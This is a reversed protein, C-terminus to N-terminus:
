TFSDINTIYDIFDEYTYGTNVPYVSAKTNLNSIVEEHFFARLGLVVTASMSNFESVEIVPLDFLEKCTDRKTVIFGTISIGVKKFASFIRKSYDGAGYIYIPEEIEKLHELDRQITHIKNKYSSEIIFNINVDKNEAILKFGESIIDRLASIMNTHNSSKISLANSDIGFSNGYKPMSGWLQIQSIPHPPVITKMGKKQAIFSLYMDEGATKYKGRLKSMKMEGLLERKVFWSHGVYDVQIPSENSTHWGVNIMEKKNVELNHPNTIIVGNTGYVAEEQFMHILCNELWREGPITDDDFICVYKSEAVDAAYEFRGWVGVNKTELKYKTFKGLTEKSFVIKYNSDIGDQYLYLNKPRVTQNNLAEIQMQLTEPRRYSTLVVDVNTNFRKRLPMWDRKVIKQNLYIRTPNGYIDVDFVSGFDIYANESNNEFLRTIIVESMPGACIVFLLNKQEGVDKIIRQLLEEGENEWFDFCDNTVYYTKKVNLGDITKGKAAENIVLIVERNVKKLDKKLLSYNSAWINAFTINNSDINQMYWLFSNTDCCPCSIGYIIKEDTYHLTRELDARLKSSTDRSIWGENSRLKVGRLIAAEGDGYRLLAFNDGNIIKSMIRKYEDDSFYIDSNNYPSGNIIWKNNEKGEIYFQGM